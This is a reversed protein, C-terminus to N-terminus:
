RLIQLAHDKVSIANGMNILLSNGSCMKGMM